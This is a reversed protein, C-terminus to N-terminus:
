QSHESLLFSVEFVLPELSAAKLLEDFSICFVKPAKSKVKFVRYLFFRGGSELTRRATELENRTLFFSTQTSPGAVTAKVEIMRPTGDEGFSLVDYGAAPNSLAIHEIRSALDPKGARTLREREFQLVILEGHLGRQGLEEQTVRQGLAGANDTQGFGRSGTPKGIVGALSQPKVTNLPPFDKQFDIHARLEPSVADKISDDNPRGFASYLFHMFEYPSWQLMVTDGAKFRGLVLNKAVNTLNASPFHLHRLFHDLHSDAFIPVFREPFYLSLLKGKYMPALPNREITEIDDAEVAKLLQGILSRTHKIAAEASDYEKLYIHKAKTKDYYVRFKLATAGLISGLRRTRREVWYCFNDESGSGICYSKLDLSAIGSAPFQRIFDNRIAKFEQYKQQRELRLPEFAAQLVRLGESDIGERPAEQSSGDDFPLGPRGGQCFPCKRDHTDSGNAGYERKCKNCRLVYIRQGFDTGPLDTQRMVQQSNPNQYGPKTTAPM